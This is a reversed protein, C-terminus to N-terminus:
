MEVETITIGFKERMLKKKIGYVRTQTAKGGKVDEVVLKGDKEYSFDAIYRIARIREGDPTTYAERLTYQPQLRLDSIAGGKLLLMLTDYRRAEAKSAFKLQTKGDEALREDRVAGYKGQKKQEAKERIQEGLKRAIQMQAAPSLRSIDIGM